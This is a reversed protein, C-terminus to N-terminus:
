NKLKEEQPHLQVASTNTGATNQTSKMIQGTECSYRCQMQLQAPISGVSSMHTLSYNINQVLSKRVGTKLCLSSGRLVSINM